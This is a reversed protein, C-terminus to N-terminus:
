PLPRHFVKRLEVKAQNLVHRRQPTLNKGGRNSEFNLMSM